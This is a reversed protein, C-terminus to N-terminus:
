KKILEEICYDNIIPKLLNLNTLAATDGIHYWVYASNNDKISKIKGIMLKNFGEYIVFQGEKFKM